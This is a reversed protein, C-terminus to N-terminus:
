CLMDLSMAGALLMMVNKGLEGGAGQLIEEHERM